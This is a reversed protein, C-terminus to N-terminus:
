QKVFNGNDFKYKLTYVKNDSDNTFKAEWEQNDKQVLEFKNIDRDPFAAIIFKKFDGPESKYSGTSTSTGDDKLNLDVDPLIDSGKVGTKKELKNKIAYVLASGTAALGIFTYWLIMKVSAKGGKEIATAPDNTIKKWGRKIWGYKKESIQRVLANGEEILEAATRNYLKSYQLQLIKTTNSDFGLLRVQEMYAAAEPSSKATADIIADADAPLEGPKPPKTGANPDPKLVNADSKGTNTKGGTANPDPKLGNKGGTGTSTGGTKLNVKEKYAVMVEKVEESPLIDGLGSKVQQIYKTKANKSGLKEAEGFIDAAITGIIKRDAAIAGKTLLRIVEKEDEQLIDTGIKRVISKVERKSYTRGAVILEKEIGLFFKGFLRALEQQVANAEDLEVADELLVKPQIGIISHMRKIEELLTKKM